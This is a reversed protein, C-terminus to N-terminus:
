EVESAETKIEDSESEMTDAKKKGFGLKKKFSFFLTGVVALGAAILQFIMSGFGPDLYM